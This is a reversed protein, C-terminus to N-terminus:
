HILYWIVLDEAQDFTSLEGENVLLYMVSKDFNKTQKKM